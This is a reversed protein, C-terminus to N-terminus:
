TVFSVFKVIPTCPEPSLVSSNQWKSAQHKPGQSHWHNVHCLQRTKDHSSNANYTEWTCLVHLKHHCRPLFKSYPQTHPTRTSFEHPLRPRPVRTRQLSPPHSERHHTNYMISFNTRSIAASTGLDVHNAVVTQINRVNVCTTTQMNRVKICTAYPRYIRSM